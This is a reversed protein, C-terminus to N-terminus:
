VDVNRFAKVLQISALSVLRAYETKVSTMLQAMDTAATVSAITTIDLLGQILMACNAKEADLAPPDQLYLASGYGNLRALVQSRLERVSDLYLRKEENFIAALDVYPPTFEGTMHNYTDGPNGATEAPVYGPWDNIDDLEHCAVVVDNENLLACRM